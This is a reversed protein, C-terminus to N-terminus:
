AGMGSLRCRPLVDVTSETTTKEAAKRAEALTSGRNSTYLSTYSAIRRSADQRMKSSQVEITWVAFLMCLRGGDEVNIRELSQQGGGGYGERM